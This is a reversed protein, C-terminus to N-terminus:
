MGMFLVIVYGLAVMGVAVNLFSLFFTPMEYAIEHNGSFSFFIGILGAPLTLFLMVLVCGFGLFGVFSMFVNSNLVNTPINMYVVAMLEIIAFAVQLRFPWVKNNM